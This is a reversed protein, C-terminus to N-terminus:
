KMSELILFQMFSHRPADLDSKRLAKARRVIRQLRALVRDANDISECDDLLESLERLEARRSENWM